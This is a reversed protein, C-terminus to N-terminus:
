TWPGRQRLCGLSRNVGDSIIAVLCGAIEDDTPNRM